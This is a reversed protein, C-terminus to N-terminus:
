RPTEEGSEEGGTRRRRFDRAQGDVTIRRHAIRWGQPERTLTDEYVGSTGLRLDGDDLHLVLLDLTLSARDGDGEIVPNSIWHKRTHAQSARRRFEELIADRGRRIGAASSEWVADETFLAALAEPDGRDVSRSYRAALELIELRDEATLPM